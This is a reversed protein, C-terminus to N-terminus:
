MFGGKAMMAAMFLIIVAGLLEGHLKRLPVLRKPAVQPVM